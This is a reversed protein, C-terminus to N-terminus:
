TFTKYEVRLKELLNIIKTAQEESVKITARNIKVYFTGSLLGERQYKYKGNKSYDTYGYLARHLRTKMHPLPTTYTIIM